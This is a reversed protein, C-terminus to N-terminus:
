DIGYEDKLHRFALWTNKRRSLRDFGICPLPHSLGFGRARQSRFRACSPLGLVLGLEFLDDTLLLLSPWPGRHLHLKKSPAHGWLAPRRTHRWSQCRAPPRLTM